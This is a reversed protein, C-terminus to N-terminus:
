DNPDLDFLYRLSEIHAYGNGNRAADNMRATPHHLLKQVISRSLAEVMERDEQDMASLRSTLRALEAVRVDEGRERLSRITPAAALTARWASFDAVGEAVIAEGREAEAQRGNINKEVVRELADIDHLTVGPLTAIEPDLDRPVSIDILLMPRALRRDVARALDDRLLIPHPADTSSIVIDAMELEPAIKTIDVGRGGIRGAVARATGETRNAVVVDTAGSDVLARTTAEAMQGAGLVLVNSSELEGLADRALDVAVSSVSASGHGVRTESRVQKGVELANRFLRNLLRGSAKQDMAREWADRVQGQIESEGLVMSDLSAAVRFLHNAAHADHQVYQVCALSESSISSRRVLADNAAAEAAPIDRAVLYIETRNCTSLAVAEAVAPSEKLEGLLNTAATDSLAAKERQQVPATKYSLGMVLVSM